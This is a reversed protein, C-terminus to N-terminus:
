PQKFNFMEFIYNMHPKILNQVILSMSAKIKVGNVELAGVQVGKTKLLYRTRIVFKM